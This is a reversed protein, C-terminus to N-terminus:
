SFRSVSGGIGQDRVFDLLDKLEGRAASHLETLTAMCQLAMSGAPEESFFFLAMVHRETDEAFNTADNIRSLFVSRGKYTFISVLSANKTGGVGEGLEMVRGLLVVDAVRVAQDLSFASWQNGAPSNACPCRMSSSFVAECSSLLQSLLFFFSSAFRLTEMECLLVASPTEYYLQKTYSHMGRAPKDVRPPTPSSIIVCACM